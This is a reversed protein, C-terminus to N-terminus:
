GTGVRMFPALPLGGPPLGMAEHSTLKRLRVVQGDAKGAIPWPAADGLIPAM